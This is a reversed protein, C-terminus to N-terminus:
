GVSTSEMFMKHTYSIVTAFYAQANQFVVHMSAHMCQNCPHLKIQKPQLNCVYFTQSINM